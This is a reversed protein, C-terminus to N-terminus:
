DHVTLLNLKIAELTAEAANSIGLKRYIEKKYGGITSPSLELVKAIEKQQLGKAICALVENERPSLISSAFKKPFRTSPTPEIKVYKQSRLINTVAKKISDLLANELWDNEKDSFKNNAIIQYDEGLVPTIVMIINM